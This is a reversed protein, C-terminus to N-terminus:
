GAAGATRQRLYADIAEISEFHEPVLDDPPISVNFEKDLLLVLHIIGASDLIGSELLPDDFGLGYSEDEFLIEKLIFDRITSRIDAM